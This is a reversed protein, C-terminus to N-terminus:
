KDFVDCHVFSHLLKFWFTSYLWVFRQSAPEWLTIVQIINNILPNTSFITHAWAKSILFYFQKETSAHCHVRVSNLRICFSCADYKSHVNQIIYFEIMCTCLCASSPNNSTATQVTNLRKAYIYITYLVTNHVMLRRHYKELKNKLISLLTVWFSASYYLFLQLGSTAHPWESSLIRNKIGM